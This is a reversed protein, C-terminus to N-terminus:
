LESVAPKFKKFIVENAHCKKNTNERIKNYKKETYRDSVFQPM